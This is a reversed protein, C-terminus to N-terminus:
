HGRSQLESTHEESRMAKIGVELYHDLAIIAALNQTVGWTRYRIARQRGGCSFRQQRFLDLAIVVQVNRAEMQVLVTVGGSGRISIPALCQPSIRAVAATVICHSHPM